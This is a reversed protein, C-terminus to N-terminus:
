PTACLQVRSFRSPLPLLLLLLLLLLNKCLMLQRIFVLIMKILSLLWLIIRM